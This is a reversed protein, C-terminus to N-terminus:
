DDPPDPWPYPPKMKYLPQKIGISEGSLFDRDKIHNTDIRCARRCVTLCIPICICLDIAVHILIGVLSITVGFIMLEIM